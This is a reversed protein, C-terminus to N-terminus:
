SKNNRNNERLASGCIDLVKTKLYVDFVNKTAILDATAGPYKLTIDKKNAQQQTLVQIEDTMKKYM